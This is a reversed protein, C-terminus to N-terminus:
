SAARGVYIYSPFPIGEVVILLTPSFLKQGGHAPIPGLGEITPRQLNPDFLDVTKLFCIQQM